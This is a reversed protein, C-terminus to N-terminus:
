VLVECVALAFPSRIWGAGLAPLMNVALLQHRFFINRLVHQGELTKGLEKTNAVIQHAFVRKNRLDFADKM